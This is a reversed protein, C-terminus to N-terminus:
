QAYIQIQADGKLRISGAFLLMRTLIPRFDYYVVVKLPHGITNPGSGGDPCTVKVTMQSPDVGSAEAEKRTREVIHASNAANDCPLAPPHAAGYRAGERASNIVTIYSYYVRGLDLTGAVIVMLLPLMLALEVISQGRSEGPHASPNNVCLFTRQRM